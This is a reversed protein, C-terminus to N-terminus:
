KVEIVLFRTNRWFLDPDTVTLAEVNKDGDLHYSGEPHSILLRARRYGLPFTLKQYKDVGEFYEMPFDDAVRQNKRLLGKKDVIGQQVLEKHTGMCYYVTNLQQAQAQNAAAQADITLQQDLALTTLSDVKSTLGTVQFDLSELQGRLVEVEAIKEEMQQNLRQVMNELSRNETGMARSKRQLEALQERNRLLMDYISNIQSNVKESIKPSREDGAALKGILGEKAAISDLNSQISNFTEAFAFLSEGARGAESKLRLNEEQLREYEERDVGCSAAILAAAVIIISKRM